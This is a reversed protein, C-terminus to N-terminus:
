AMAAHLPIGRLAWPGPASSIVQQRSHPTRGEEVLFTPRFPRLRVGRSSFPSPRSVQTMTSAPIVQRLLTVLPAFPHQERAHFSSRHSTSPFHQSGCLPCPRPLPSFHRLPEFSVFVFRGAFSRQRLYPLRSSQQRLGTLAPSPRRHYSGCRRSRMHAAASGILRAAFVGISLRSGSPSPLLDFGHQPLTKSRHPRYRSRCSQAGGQQCPRRARPLRLAGPSPRSSVAKCCSYARLCSQAAGTKTRM